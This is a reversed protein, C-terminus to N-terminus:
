STPTTPPRFATIVGMPLGDPKWTAPPFPPLNTALVERFSWRNSHCARQVDSYQVTLWLNSNNQVLVSGHEITYAVEADFEADNVPDGHDYNGHTREDVLRLYGFKTTGCRLPRGDTGAVPARHPGGDRRPM